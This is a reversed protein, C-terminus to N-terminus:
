ALLKRRSIGSFVAQLVGLLPNRAGLTARGVCLAPCSIVDVAYSGFENFHPYTAIKHPFSLPFHPYDAFLTLFDDLV